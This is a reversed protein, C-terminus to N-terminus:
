GEFCIVVGVTVGWLEFTELSRGPSYAVADLPTLKTKHHVGLIVGRESVVLASTHPKGGEVPTETGLVCGLKWRGCRRAVARHLEDLREAPVPMAPTAIDVRYGVTQTEPFCLMQVGAKGAEDLKSLIAAANADFDATQRCQALGIRLSKVHP